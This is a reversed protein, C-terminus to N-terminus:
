SLPSFPSEWDVPDFRLLPVIDATLHYKALFAKHVAAMDVIHSYPDNIQFTPHGTVVFFAEISAPLAANLAESSVIIENYGSHWGPPKYSAGRESHMQLLLKLDAPSWATAPAGMFGCSQWQSESSPYTPPIKGSSDALHSVDCFTASCGPHEPTSHRFTGGDIGYLCRLSDQPPRLLIGGRDGFPM